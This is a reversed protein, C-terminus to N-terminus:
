DQAAAQKLRESIAGQAMGWLALAAIHVGIMLVGGGFASFRCIQVLCLAIVFWCFLRVLQLVHAQEPKVRSTTLLVFLGIVVALGAGLYDGMGVEM